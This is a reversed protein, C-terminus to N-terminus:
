PPSAVPTQERGQRVPDRSKFESSRFNAHDSLLIVTAIPLEGDPLQSVVPGAGATVVRRCSSLAREGPGRECHFNVQGCAMFIAESASHSGSSKGVGLRTAGLKEGLGLKRNRDFDM